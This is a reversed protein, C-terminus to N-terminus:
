RPLVELFGIDREEEEDHAAESAGQHGPQHEGDEEEHHFTIRFRGTDDAVFVLESPSAAEIEQELDYGHLHFEGGEDSNIKLTVTDGQKVRVTEPSMKEEGIEVLVELEQTGGGGCASWALIGLLTLFIVLERGRLTSLDLSGIMNLINLKM